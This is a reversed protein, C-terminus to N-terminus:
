RIFSRARYSSLIYDVSMPVANLGVPQFAEPNNYWGGVLAIICHVLANPIANYGCDVSVTINTGEYTAPTELFKLVPAPGNSRDLWYDAAPMLTNANASNQYEVKTVSTFPLLPIATDEFRALFLQRVLPTMYLGTEREVLEEAAERYLLLTTDDDAYDIKLASKITSLPISM